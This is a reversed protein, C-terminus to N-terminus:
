FFCFLTEERLDFTVQELLILKSNQSELQQRQCGQGKKKHFFLLFPYKVQYSIPIELGKESPWVDINVWIFNLGFEDPHHITM